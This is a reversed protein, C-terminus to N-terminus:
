SKTPTRTIHASSAESPRTSAASSCRGWFRHTSESWDLSAAEGILKLDDRTIPLATEDDFLGGNFWEIEDVGFLGGDKMASFLQVLMNQAIDPKQFGRDCILRFIKRPLLNIDEAFMCFVLRNIFHAVQQPDHGRDRLTIALQAFKDAADRTLADITKGPKLQEPDVFVQRM